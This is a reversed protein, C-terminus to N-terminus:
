FFSGFVWRKKKQIEQYVLSFLAFFVETQIAPLLRLSSIGSAFGLFLCSLELSSTNVTEELVFDAGRLLSFRGYHQSYAEVTGQVATMLLPERPSVGLFAATLEAQGYDATLAGCVETVTRSAKGKGLEYVGQKLSLSCFIPLLHSYLVLIQLSIDTPFSSIHPFLCPFLPLLAPILRWIGTCVGNPTCLFLPM